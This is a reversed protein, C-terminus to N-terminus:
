LKLALLLFCSLQTFIVEQAVAAAKRSEGLVAAASSSHKWWELVMM